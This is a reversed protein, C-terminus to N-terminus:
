RTVLIFLFPFMKADQTQTFTEILILPFYLVTVWHAFDGFFCDTPTYQQCCPVTNQTGFKVFVCEKLSNKKAIKGVSYRKLFVHLLYNTRIRLHKDLIRIKVIYKFFCFQLINRKLLTQKIFLQCV